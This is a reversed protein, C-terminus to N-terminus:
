ENETDAWEFKKGCLPVLMFVHNGVEIKDFPSLPMVEFIAEDNLYLMGRSDGPQLMTARTREDYSIIAHELHEVRRDGLIQIDMSSSRGVFNRGAHIEYDRGKNLGEKCVLWGCVWGKKAENEASEKLEEPPEEKTALDVKKGCYPCTEGYYKTNYSHGEPCKEFPKLKLKEVKQM